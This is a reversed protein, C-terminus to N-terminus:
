PSRSDFGKGSGFIKCVRSYAQFMSWHESLPCWYDGRFGLENFSRVVYIIIAATIKDLSIMYFVCGCDWGEIAGRVHETPLRGLYHYCSRKGVM